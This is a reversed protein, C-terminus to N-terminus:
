IAKHAAQRLKLRFKSLQEGLKILDANSNSYLDPTFDAHEKKFHPPWFLPKWVATRGRTSSSVDFSSDLLLESALEYTKINTLDDSRVSIVRTWKEPIAKRGRKAGGAKQEEKDGENNSDESNSYLGEEKLLERIAQQM